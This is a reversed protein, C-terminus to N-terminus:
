NMRLLLRASWVVCCLVGSYEIVPYCVGVPKGEVIVRAPYSAPGIIKMDFAFINLEQLMPPM